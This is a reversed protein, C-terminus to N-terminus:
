RSKLVLGYDNVGSVSLYDPRFRLPISKFPRYDVEHHVRGFKWTLKSVDPHMAVQMESKATTGENAYFEATNGGGLVQTRLKDQLFANFQITAWGDKLMRLSLDTDENYRGRWRYPTDNRILNCSYIRTNAVFPPIVSNQSAFSRYNPGTMGTNSYRLSFDEMARFGTGDLLRIKLNNTLRLFERINDDMVWHWDYGSQISHDWAFNRAPGPGTSKTLGHSDFCDYQRKYEPDLILIKSPDIVAAYDNYEQEEVVIYYPVNMLELAKPTYRTDARGKSVIYLPFQPNM